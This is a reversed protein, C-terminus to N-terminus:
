WWEARHTGQFQSLSICGCEDAGLGALCGSVVYTANAEFPVLGMHMVTNKLEERSYEMQNNPWPNNCCPTILARLINHCIWLSKDQTLDWRRFQLLREDARDDEAFGNSLPSHTTGTPASLDVLGISARVLIFVLDTRGSYLGHV